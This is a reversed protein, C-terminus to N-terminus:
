RKGKKYLYIYLYKYKFVKNNLESLPLYILQSNWTYKGTKDRIIM